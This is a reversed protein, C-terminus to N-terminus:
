ENDVNQKEMHIFQLRIVVVSFIIMLVMAPDGMWFVLWYLEDFKLYFLGMVKTIIKLGFFILWIINLFCLNEQPLRKLVTIEFDKTLYHFISKKQISLVCLFLFNIVNIVLAPVYYFKENGTFCIAVASGILGLLGLVSTNFIRRKKYYQVSISIGNFLVSFVIALIIGWFTYIFYFLISPFIMNCILFINRYKKM